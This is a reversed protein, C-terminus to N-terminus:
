SFIRRDEYQEKSNCDNLCNLRLIPKHYQHPDCYTRYEQPSVDLLLSLANKSM